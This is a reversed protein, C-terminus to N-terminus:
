LPLCPRVCEDCRGSQLSEAVGSGAFSGFLQADGTLILGWCLTGLSSSPMVRVSVDDVISKIVRKAIGIYNPKVQHGRALTLPEGSPPDPDGQRTTRAPVALRGQKRKQGDNQRFFCVVYMSTMPNLGCKGLFAPGCKGLFAIFQMGVTLKFPPRPCSIKRTFQATSVPDNLM